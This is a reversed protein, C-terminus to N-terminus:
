LVEAISKGYIVKNDKLINEYLADPRKTKKQFESQKVTIPALQNGLLESVVKEARDLNKRATKLAMSDPIIVLVDIDSDPREKGKATSGFVAITLPKTSKFENALTKALLGFLNAEKDFLPKLMNKYLTHKKDFKYLIAQGTKRSIILGHLELEQLTTHCRVHSLNVAKALESGNMETDTRIMFRLLKIKSAQGLIVDLPKKLIM